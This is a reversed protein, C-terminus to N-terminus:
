CRYVRVHPDHQLQGPLCRRGQAISGAQFYKSERKRLAKPEPGMLLPVAQRAPRAAVPRVLM